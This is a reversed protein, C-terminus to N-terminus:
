VVAEQLSQRSPMSTELIMLVLNDFEIGAQKAAMPVLSHSTMGPITNIEILWIRNERDIFFDVRGWGSADVLKFAKLVETGVGAEVEPALGCPCIYRTTNEIYKAQYDYFERPTELRIMPLLSDNVISATFESGEIWREAMVREDYERAILWAEKLESRNKVKSAGCSSGESVPKIMVPYGIEDTVRELENMDTLEIFDPTSIGQSLWVWKTRVKDMTLASGLVGSGTYPIDMIELAGQILGDEGGRGHLAIFARDFNGDVIKKFTDEGTDVLYSDINKRRSKGNRLDAEWLYPLKETNRWM